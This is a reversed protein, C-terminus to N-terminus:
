QPEKSNEETKLSSQLSARTEPGGPCDIIAHIHLPEIFRKVLIRYKKGSALDAKSM